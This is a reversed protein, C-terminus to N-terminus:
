TLWDTRVALYSALTWTAVMRVSTAAYLLLTARSSKITQLADWLGEVEWREESAFVDGPKTVGNGGGGSGKRIGATSGARGECAADNDLSGYNPKGGAHTKGSDTDNNNSRSSNNNNNSHNLPVVAAESAPSDHAAKSDDTTTTSTPNIDDGGGSNADGGELSLLSLTTSPQSSLPSLRQQQKPTRRRDRGVAGRGLAGAKRPKYVGGDRDGIGGGSFPNIGEM